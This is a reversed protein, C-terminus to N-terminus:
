FNYVVDLQAWVGAAKLDSILANQLARVPASPLAYGKFVAYDIVKQYEPLVPLVAAPLFNKSIIDVHQSPQFTALSTGPNNVPYVQPTDYLIINELNNQRNRKIILSFTTENKNLFQGGNLFVGTTFKPFGGTAYQGFGAPDNSFWRAARDGRIRIKNAFIEIVERNTIEIKTANVDTCVRMMFDILITNDLDHPFNPPIVVDIYDNVLSRTLNTGGLALLKGCDWYLYGDELFLNTSGANADPFSAPDPDTWKTISYPFRLLCQISQQFEWKTNKSRIMGWWFAFEPPKGYNAIDGAARIDYKATIKGRNLLAPNLSQDPLTDAGPLLSPVFVPTVLKRDNQSSPYKRGYRDYFALGVSYESDWEFEAIGYLPSPTPLRDDPTIPNNDLTILLQFANLYDYDVLSDILFIRNEIFALYNSQQPISDNIKTSLELPYFNGVVNDTFSYTFTYNEGAQSFLTKVFINVSRWDAIANNNRVYLEVEKVIAYDKLPILMTVDIHDYFSVLADRDDLSNLYESAPSKTSQEGEIFRYVMM